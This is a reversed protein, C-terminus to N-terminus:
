AMDELFARLPGDDFRRPIVLEIAQEGTPLLPARVVTVVGERMLERIADALRGIAQRQEFNLREGTM